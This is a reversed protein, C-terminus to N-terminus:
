SRPSRRQRTIIASDWPHVERPFEFGNPREKRGSPETHGDDAANRQSRIAMRSEREVKINHSVCSCLVREDRHEFRGSEGRKMTRRTVRVM